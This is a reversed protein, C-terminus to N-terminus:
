IYGYNKISLNEALPINQLTLNITFYNKKWM